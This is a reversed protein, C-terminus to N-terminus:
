CESSTEIDDRNESLKGFIEDFSSKSKKSPRSDVVDNLLGELPNISEFSESSSKDNELFQSKFNNLDDEMHSLDSNLFDESIMPQDNNLETYLESGFFPDISEINIEEDSSLLGGEKQLELIIQDNIMLDTNANANGEMNKNLAAAIDAGNDNQNNLDFIKEINEYGSDSAEKTLSLSDLLNEFNESTPIPSSNILSLTFCYALIKQFM